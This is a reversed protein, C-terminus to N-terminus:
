EYKPFNLGFIRAWLEIAKKQDEKKIEYDVALTSIDYCESAKSSIRQRQEFTLDNINGQIGKPDQVDYIILKSLYYFFDRINIDNYENQSGLNKVFNLVLVEFLYSGMKPSTFNANWYKLTRVLQYVKGGYTKNAQSINDIDIGPNTAKWNGSGDPILYFGQVTYFCPVIDYSWAYSTLNLVAAEQNRKAESNSYQPVNKLASVIKNVIRISNLINNENSLLKLENTANQTHIYYKSSNMADVSYYANGGALCYMLDIDDLPRIKTNRAFSGYKIHKLPYDNPFNEVSEPFSLLQEILWDRSSRANDTNAKILNVTNLNFEYFAQNVSKAM